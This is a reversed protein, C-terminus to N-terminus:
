GGYTNVKLLPYTKKGAEKDIRVAIEERTDSFSEGDQITLATILDSMGYLHGIELDSDSAVCRYSETESIAATILSERDM